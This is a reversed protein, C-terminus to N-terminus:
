GFLGHLWGTLVNVVLDAVFMIVEKVSAWFTEPAEHVGEKIEQAAECGAMMFVSALALIKKM